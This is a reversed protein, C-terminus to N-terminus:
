RLDLLNLSTGWGRGLTKGCGLRTPDLFRMPVGGGWVSGFKAEVVLRWLAESETAYRRLWKGILAQNFLL